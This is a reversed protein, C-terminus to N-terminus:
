ISFEWQCFLDPRQQDPPCHICSTRIRPDITAAFGSYEVTGVPKCPFDDLKKRRRAQQVRCEHMTFVLQDPATREMSQVNVFAYLRYALARELADLGGDKAIEFVEMIRRAEAKTFREWSKADLEIATDMGFKEEIALFWCGDHALWNKAHVEVIKLLEDRSLEKLEAM